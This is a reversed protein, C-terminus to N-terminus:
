SHLEDLHNEMVYCYMLGVANAENKDEERHIEYIQDTESSRITLSVVHKGQYQLYSFIGPRRVISKTKMTVWVEQPFSEKIEPATQAAFKHEPTGMYDLEAGTRYLNLTDLAVNAIWYFMCDQRFGCQYLRQAVDINVVYKEYLTRTSSAKM